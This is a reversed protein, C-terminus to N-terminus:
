FILEEPAKIQFHNRLEEFHNDRTVLIAENELAFALHFSDILPINKSKQFEQARAKVEKTLEVNLIKNAEILDPFIKEFVASEEIRLVKCIEDIVTKSVLVLYKCSVAENLLKSAYLGIPLVNDSRDLFYDLYINADLYIRQPMKM